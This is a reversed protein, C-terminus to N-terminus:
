WRKGFRSRMAGWLSSAPAGASRDERQEDSPGPARERQQEAVLAEVQRHAKDMGRVSVMIREADSPVTLPDGALAARVEDDPVRSWAAIDPVSWDYRARLEALERRANDSLPGGDSSRDM